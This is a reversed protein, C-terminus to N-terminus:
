QHGRLLGILALGIACAAGAALPLALDNGQQTSMQPEIMSQFSIRKPDWVCNEELGSRVMGCNPPVWATDFGDDHWTKQLPHGQKDIRKVKGVDVIVRLVVRQSEPLNLPYCSAKLLDRSLYVGRGLMGDDSQRFGQSRISMANQLSTGHYMVYRGGSTPPSLGLRQVGRPLAFDDEAWRIGSM